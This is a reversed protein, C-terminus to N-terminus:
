AAAVVPRAPKARSVLPNIIFFYCLILSIALTPASLYCRTKVKEVPGHDENAGIHWISNPM